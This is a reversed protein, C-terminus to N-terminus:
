RMPSSLQQSQASSSDPTTGIFHNLFLQFLESLSSVHLQAYIRKRHNKVTGLSIALADAIEQSDLGQILLGTIEQERRSLRQAGFSAIAQEVWARLDENPQANEALRLTQRDWHQQCLSALLTFRQQLAEIQARPFSRAAFCGLYIVISRQGDLDVVVSVEDQWGTQAYFPHQYASSSPHQPTLDSLHFVGCRRHQEFATYFPDDLYAHTLYRQFLWERQASLSDYLYIPHKSSRHGLIVACDFDAICRLMAVFRSTFQPTKLAAIAEGLALYEQPTVQM